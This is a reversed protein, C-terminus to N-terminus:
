LIEPFIARYYDWEHCQLFFQLYTLFLPILAGKTMDSSQAFMLLQTKLCAPVLRVLFVGLSVFVSISYLLPQGVLRQRRSTAADAM